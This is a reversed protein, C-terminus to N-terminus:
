VLDLNLVGPSVKVVTHPEDLKPCKGPRRHFFWMMSASDHSRGCAMPFRREFFCSFRYNREVDARVASELDSLSLAKIEAGV